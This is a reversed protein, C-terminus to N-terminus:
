LAATEPLIFDTKKGDKDELGGVQNQECLRYSRRIIEPLGEVLDYDDLSAMAVWRAEGADSGAIPQTAAGPQLQALFDIIVYHFQEIRREVVAVLSLVEVDLGTEEKMERQCTNELSEGPEQKGGPISWLGAAPAQGRKILLVDRNANFVIGGVGIAPEPMLEVPHTEM